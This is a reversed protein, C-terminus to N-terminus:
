YRLTHFVLANMPPDPLWPLLLSYLQCRARAHIGATDADESLGAPVAMCSVFVALLDCAQPIAHTMVQHTDYTGQAFVWDYHPNLHGSYRREGTEYSHPHAMMETVIAVEPETVPSSITCEALISFADYIVWKHIGPNVDDLDPLANEGVVFTDGMREQVADWLVAADGETPMREGYWLATAVGDLATRTLLEVPLYNPPMPVCRKTLCTNSCSPM